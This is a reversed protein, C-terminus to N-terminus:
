GAKTAPGGYRGALRDLTGADTERIVYDFNRMIEQRGIEALVAAHILDAHAELAARTAECERDSDSLLRARIDTRLAALAKEAAERRKAVASRMVEAEAQIGALEEAAAQREADLGLLGAAVQAPAGAEIDERQADLEALRKRASEEQREIVGLQVRLRAYAIFDPHALISREMAGVGAQRVKQRAEEYLAINQHEEGNKGGIGPGTYAWHVAARARGGHPLHEVPRTPPHAEVRWRPAAPKADEKKAM